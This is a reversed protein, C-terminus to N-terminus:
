SVKMCSSYGPDRGRIRNEWWSKLFALIDAVPGSSARGCERFFEETRHTIEAHLQRHGGRAPYAAQGFMREEYQFHTRTYQQLEKEVESLVRPDFGTQAVEYALNLLALIAKHQDDLERSGVSYEEKWVVFQVGSM